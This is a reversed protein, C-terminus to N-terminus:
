TLWWPDFGLILGLMPCPNRPGCGPARSVDLSKSSPRLGLVGTMYQPGESPDKEMARV